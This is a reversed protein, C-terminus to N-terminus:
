VIHVSCLAVEPHKWRQSLDCPGSMLVYPFVILDCGKQSAEATLEALKALSKALDFAVPACQVAAVKVTEQISAM